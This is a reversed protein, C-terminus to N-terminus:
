KVLLVMRKGRSYQDSQGAPRAPPAEKQWRVCSQNQNWPSGM